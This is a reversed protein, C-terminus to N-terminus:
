AFMRAQRQANEIRECAIDFYKRSLEIGIFARGAAICSVGTTGSGMFPDLVSEGPLSVKGVLWDMASQPKSCPHRTDSPPETVQLVTKSITKGARPDKGYFCVPNFNAFGWRNMGVAAPQYLGGLVEPEPYLWLCPSGPTVAGRKTITLALAIAPVCVDRVYERSDSFEADYVAKCRKRNSTGSSYSIGYPPDTVLADARLGRMIEVCDGHYLTANGIVIM